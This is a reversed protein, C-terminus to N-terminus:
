SGTLLEYSEGGAFGGGGGVGGFILWIESIAAQQVVVVWSQPSQQTLTEWGYIILTGSIEGAAAAGGWRQMLTMEQFTVFILDAARIALMMESAVEQDLSGMMKSLEVPHGGEIKFAIM